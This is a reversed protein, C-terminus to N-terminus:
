DNMADKRMKELEDASYFKDPHTRSYTQKWMFCDERAFQLRCLVRQSKRDFWFENNDINGIFELEM